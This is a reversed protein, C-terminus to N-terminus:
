AMDAAFRPRGAQTGQLASLDSDVAITSGQNLAYALRHSLTTQCTASPITIWSEWWISVQISPSWPVKGQRLKRCHTEAYLMGQLRLHDIAEWESAEAPTLPSHCQAQLAFARSPLNHFNLFASYLSTYRQVIRPDGCQLRRARAYVIPPLNHGFAIAFPIDVWLCRHDSPVAEGFALYGTKVHHLLTSTVFIGDIPTSGRNYTPPANSGHNHLIVETLGLARLSAAAPSSCVDENMDMLVMIQDGTLLWTSIEQCLDETFALRPCRDDNRKYLVARHQNYVSTPGQRNHVPRYSSVVRLTIQNRGRYRTWAWRGLGSLDHGSEIVRHAAQNISFLGVGGPQLPEQHATTEQLYALSVHLAEWWGMTREPLRDQIPLRHWCTNTETLAFIDFEGGSIAARIQRNKINTTYHPFGGINQLGIRLTHEPKTRLADGWSTFTHAHQQLRVM